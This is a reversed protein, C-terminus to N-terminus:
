CTVPLQVEFTFRLFNKRGFIEDLLLKLGHVENDDISIWISGDQIAGTEDSVKQKM